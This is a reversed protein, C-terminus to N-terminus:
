DSEEYGKMIRPTDVSVRVSVGKEQTGTHQQM